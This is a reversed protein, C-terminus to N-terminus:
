TLFSKRERYFKECAEKASNFTDHARFGGLDVRSGDFRQAGVYKVSATFKEDQCTIIFTFVGQM